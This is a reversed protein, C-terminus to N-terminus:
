RNRARELKRKKLWAVVNARSLLSRTTTPEVDEEHIYGFNCGIVYRLGNGTGMAMYRIMHLQRLVEEM